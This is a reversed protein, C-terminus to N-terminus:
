RPPRARPTVSPLKARPRVTVDMIEARESLSMASVIVHVVDEPRMLLEPRYPRGEHQHVAEQMPTDTRGVYISSVRVGAHNVDDRFADAFDKLGRKTRAYAANDGSPALAATSNVFVVQGRANELAPRLAQTLLVPADLNVRRMRERAGRPTADAPGLWITGACHVLVDITQTQSLIEAAAREVSESEELDAVVSVVRPDNPSTAALLADLRECSRGLARVRAGRADLEVVLARGIGGTAGTVVCERGEM